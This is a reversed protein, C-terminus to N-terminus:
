RRGRGPWLRAELKAGMRSRPWLSGGRLLREMSRVRRPVLQEVGRVARPVLQELARMREPVLQELRRMAAHM